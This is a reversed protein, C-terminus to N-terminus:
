IKGYMRSALNKGLVIWKDNCLTSKMHTSNQSQQTMMGVKISRSELNDKYKKIESGVVHWDINKSVHLAM